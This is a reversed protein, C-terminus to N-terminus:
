RREKDWRVWIWYRFTSTLARMCTDITCIVLVARLHMDEITDPGQYAYVSM